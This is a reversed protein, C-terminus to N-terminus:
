VVDIILNGYDDVKARTGEPILTTGSYETVICPVRLRAGATIEERRYVAARIKKREFFTEAFERPRAFGKSASNKLRQVKLKGVVGISRVRASVIEM